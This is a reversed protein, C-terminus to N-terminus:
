TVDSLDLLVEPDRLYAFTLDMWTSYLDETLIAFMRYLYVHGKGDIFHYCAM